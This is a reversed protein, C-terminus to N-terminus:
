STYAKGPLDARQARAYTFWPGNPMESAIDHQLFSINWQGWSPMAPVNQGAQNDVWGQPLYASKLFMNEFMQLAPNFLCTFSVGNQNYAPYGILGTNKDVIPYHEDNQEDAYDRAYVHLVNETNVHYVAGVAHALRDLQQAPSGAEYVNRLYINLGHVVCDSFGAKQAIDSFITAAHTPGPYSTPEATRTQADRINVASVQFATGPSASFDVFAEVIQGAFVTSMGTADDGAQVKVTNSANRQYSRNDSTVLAQIVSLRNMLPLAMGEVRLSLVTGDLMAAESITARCRLGSLQIVDKTATPGLAGTDIEFTVDIKKHRFSQPLRAAKAVATDTM